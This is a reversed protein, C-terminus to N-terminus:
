WITILSTTLFFDKLLSIFSNIHTTTTTADQKRDDYLFYHFVTHRQRSPTTSNFYTQPLPSFQELVM